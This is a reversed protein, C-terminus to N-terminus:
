LALLLVGNGRESYNRLFLGPRSGVTQSRPAHSPVKRRGAGAAHDADDIQFVVRFCKPPVHAFAVNKIIFNLLLAKKSSFLM